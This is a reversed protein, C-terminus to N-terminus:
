QISLRYFRHGSGASQPMTITTGTGSNTSLNSWSSDAVNDKYQIVYQHNPVTPFGLEANSGAKTAGLPSYVKVVCAGQTIPNTGSNDPGWIGFGYQVFSMGTTASAPVTLIFPQGAVLNTDYRYEVSWDQSVKIFARATYKADLSNSSCYGAFVLKDGALANNQIYFDQELYAAASGDPNIYAPDMTNTANDYVSTNPQLTIVDTSTDMSARLSTPPAVGWGWSAKPSTGAAGSAPPSSILNTGSWVNLYGLFPAYARDYYLWSPNYVYLKVSKDDSNGLSDQVVLSYTGEQTSQVGILKLSKTKSGSVSASDSLDVGNFKWQYSLGIGTTIATFTIDSGIVAKGPNPSISAISAVELVLQNTILVYGLNGVYSAAAPNTRAPPAM